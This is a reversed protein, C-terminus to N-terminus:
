QISSLPKVDLMPVQREGITKELWVMDYWRNFKYGCQKFYGVEKFGLHQHFMVSNNSLYEDPVQITAVCAYITVMGMQRLMQELAEYLKRGYGKKNAQRDVYISAECVWDYARREYFASAYAYGVIVGEEEIVLYPYKQLIKTMREVFEQETPVDYEFTIATTEVYPRYIEVLRKADATTALRIM